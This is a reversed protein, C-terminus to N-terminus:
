IDIRPHILQKKKFDVKRVKGPTYSGITLALGGAEPPFLTTNYTIAPLAVDTPSTDLRGDVTFIFHPIGAKELTFAFDAYGGVVPWLQGRSYASFFGSSWPPPGSFPTYTWKESGGVFSGAAAHGALQLLVHSDLPVVAATYAAGAGRPEIEIPFKVVRGRPAVRQFPAGRAIAPMREGKFAWEYAMLAEKDMLIGDTATALTGGGGYAAELKGLLGLLLVQKKSSM